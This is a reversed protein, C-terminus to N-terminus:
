ACRALLCSIIWGTAILATRWRSYWPHPDMQVESVWELFLHPQYASIWVGLIWVDGHQINSFSCGVMCNSNQTVDEDCLTEWFGNHRIVSWLKRRLLEPFEARVMTYLM